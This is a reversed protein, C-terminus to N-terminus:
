RPRVLWAKWPAQAVITGPSVSYLSAARGNVTVRAGALTVPWPVGPAQVTDSALNYGSITFLGGPAVISPAPDLTFANVIGRPDIVPGTPAQALATGLAALVCCLGRVLKM